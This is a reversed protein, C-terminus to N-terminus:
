LRMLGGRCGAVVYNDDSTVSGSFSFVAADNQFGRVVNVQHFVDWLRVTYDFSGSAIQDGKPSYVASM